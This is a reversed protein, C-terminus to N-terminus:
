SSTSMTIGLCWRNSHDFYDHTSTLKIDLWFFFILDIDSSYQNLGKIGNYTVSRPWWQNLYQTIVQCCLANGLCNSVIPGWLFINCHVELLCTISKLWPISGFHTNIFCDVIINVEIYFCAKTTYMHFECWDRSSDQKIVVLSALRCPISPISCYWYWFQVINLLHFPTSLGTNCNAHVVYYLMKDTNPWVCLLSEEHSSYKVKENTYKFM